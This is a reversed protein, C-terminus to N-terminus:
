HWCNNTVPIEGQHLWAKGSTKFNNLPCRVKKETNYLLSFLMKAIRNDQRWRTNGKLNRLLFWKCNSIFTTWNVESSCLKEM